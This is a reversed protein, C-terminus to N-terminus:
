VILVGQCKKSLVGGGFFVVVFFHLLPISFILDNYTCIAGIIVQFFTEKKKWFYKFFYCFIYIKKKVKLFNTERALFNMM